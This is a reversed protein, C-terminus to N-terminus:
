QLQVVDRKSFNSSPISLNCYPIENEVFVWCSAELISIKSFDTRNKNLAIGIVFSLLSIGKRDLYIQISSSSSVMFVTNVTDLAGSTPEGLRDFIRTFWIGVAHDDLYPIILSSM